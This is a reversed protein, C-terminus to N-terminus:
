EAAGIHDWVTPRATHVDLGLAVAKGAEYPDFGIDGWQKAEDPGFGNEIWTAAIGSYEVGAAIWKAADEATQGQLTWDSAESPSVGIEWFRVYYEHFEGRVMAMDVVADDNLPYPAPNAYLATASAQWRAHWAQIEEPPIDDCMWDRQSTPKENKAIVSLLQEEDLDAVERAIHCIDDGDLGCGDQLALWVLRRARALPSPALERPLAACLQTDYQDIATTLSDTM